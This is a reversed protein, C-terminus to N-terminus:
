DIENRYFKTEIRQILTVVILQDEDEIKFVIYDILVELCKSFKTECFVCVCLQNM